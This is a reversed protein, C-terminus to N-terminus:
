VLLVTGISGVVDPVSSINQSPEKSPLKEGM